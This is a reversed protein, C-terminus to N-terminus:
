MAVKSIFLIGYFSVGGEEKQPLLPLKKNTLEM